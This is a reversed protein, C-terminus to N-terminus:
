KFTCAEESSTELSIFGLSAGQPHNGKRDIKVLQPQLLREGKTNFRLPEGSTYTPSSDVNAGDKYEQLQRLMDNRTVTQSLMKIIAQTADFSSATRWSIQGEWRTCAKKAYDYDARQFWPVALIMGDVADGGNKLTAPDYLPNSGMVLKRKQGIPLRNNEEAVAKAVRVAVSVTSKSPFLMVVETEGEKFIEKVLDELDPRSLSFTRDIKGGPSIFATTFSDRSSEGLGGGSSDYFIVAHKIGLEAAYAALREAYAIESPITRLFTKGFIDNGSSTPSIMVLGAQEHVPLAAKTAETSNHGIVGLVDPNNALIYSVQEAVKPMNGDNVLIVKLLRKDKGGQENFYSQADAVGRLMEQASYPDNTVPVVAAILYPNGQKIAKANELYIQAEPDNRSATVANRFNEEAKVYKDSKDSAFFSVGNKLDSNNNDFLVQEGSSFRQNYDWSFICEPIFSQNLFCVPNTIRLTFATLSLLSAVVVTTVIPKTFRNRPQTPSIKKLLVPERNTQESNVIQLRRGPQSGTVLEIANCGLRYAEEYSRGAGLADYFGEAFAIASSDNIAQNMGIVYDMYQHIQQAQVHSYCANLLVCQVSRFESLLNALAKPTIRNSVNQDDSEIVLGEEGAGHGSFHVIQPKYDLLARRLDRARVAWHSKIEFHERQGYRRIAEEITRVEVDLRLPETVRPNAALILIKKRKRM